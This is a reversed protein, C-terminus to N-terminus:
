MTRRSGMTMLSSRPCAITLRMSEVHIEHDDDLGTADDKCASLSLAVAALALIRYPRRVFTAFM